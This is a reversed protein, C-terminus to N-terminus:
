KPPELSLPGYERVLEDWTHAMYRLACYWAVGSKQWVDGEKDWVFAKSGQPEAIGIVSFEDIQENEFSWDVPDPGDFKVCFYYPNVESIVGETPKKWKVKTGVPPINNM